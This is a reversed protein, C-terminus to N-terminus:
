YSFGDSKEYYWELEQKVGPCNMMVRSSTNSLVHCRISKQEQMLHSLCTSTRNPFCRVQFITSVIIWRLAVRFKRCLRGLFEGRSQLRAYFAQNVWMHPLKQYGNEFFIGCETCKWMSDTLYIQFWSSVDWEYRGEGIWWFDRVFAMLRCVVVEIGIEWWGNWWRGAGRALWSATLLTVTWRSMRHPFFTRAAIFYTSPLTSLM